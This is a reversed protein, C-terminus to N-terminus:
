FNVLEMISKKWLWEFRQQSTFECLPIFKLTNASMYHIYLPREINTLHAHTFVLDDTQFQCMGRCVSIQFDSRASLPAVLLRFFVFFLFGVVVVVFSQM